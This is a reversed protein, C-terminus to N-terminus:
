GLMYFCKKTEYTSPKTMATMCTVDNSRKQSESEYEIGFAAVNIPKGVLLSKILPEAFCDDEKYPLKCVDIYSQFTRVSGDFKNSVVAHGDMDDAISVFRVIM